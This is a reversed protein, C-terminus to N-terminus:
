FMFLALSHVVLRDQFPVNAVNDRQPLSVWTAAVLPFDVPNPGVDADTARHAAVPQHQFATGKLFSGSIDRLTTLPRALCRAQRSPLTFKYNAVFGLEGIGGINFSNL